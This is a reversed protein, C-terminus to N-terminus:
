HNAPRRSKLWGRQSIIKATREPLDVPGLDDDSRNCVDDALLKDAADQHGEAPLVAVLDLRSIEDYPAARRATEVAARARHLDGEALAHTTVIHAVDVIACGMLHDLREGELLWSWGATRLQDFPQGSALGLAIDFDTLGEAGRSQGRARTRRFLDLDVLLGEVQYSPTGRM